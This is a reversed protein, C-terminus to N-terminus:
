CRKRCLFSEFRYFWHFFDNNEKSKSFNFNNVLRKLLKDNYDCKIKHLEMTMRRQQFSLIFFSFFVNKNKKRNFSSSVSNRFNEVSAFLTYVTLVSPLPTLFRELTYTHKYLRTEFAWYLDVSITLFYSIATSLLSWGTTPIISSFIFSIESYPNILEVHDIIM